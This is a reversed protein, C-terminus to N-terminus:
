FWCFRRALVIIEVLLGIAYPVFFIFFEPRTIIGDIKFNPAFFLFYVSLKLAVTLLYLSSLNEKKSNIGWSLLILAITALLTNISYSQFLFNTRIPLLKSHIFLALIMLVFLPIIYLTKKLMFICWLHKTQKIILYIIAVLGFVTLLLTFLSKQNEYFTDLYKGLWVAGYIIAGIQFALSSFTLWRKPQKKM